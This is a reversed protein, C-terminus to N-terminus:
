GPRKSRPEETLVVLKRGLLNGPKLQQFIGSATGSLGLMKSRGKEQLWDKLSIGKKASSGV